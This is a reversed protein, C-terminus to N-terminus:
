PPTELPIRAALVARQEPTLRTRGPPPAASMRNQPDAVHPLGFVHGLEHAAVLGAEEPPLASLGEWSLFVVPTFTPDLDLRSLLPGAEAAEPGVALGLLSGTTRAARSRAGALAPTVVVMVTDRAPLAEAVLFERLPRLDDGGLPDGLRVARPPGDLALSAHEEAAFRRLGDAVRRLATAPVGDGHRLELVLADGVGDGGLWERTAALDPSVEIVPTPEACGLLLPVLGTM